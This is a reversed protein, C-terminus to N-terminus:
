FHQSHPGHHHMGGGFTPESCRKEIPWVAAALYLGGPILYAAGLIWVAHMEDSLLSAALLIVGGTTAVVGGFLEHHWGIVLATAAIVITALLTLEATTQNALPQAIPNEPGTARSVVVGLVGAGVLGGLLRATWHCILRPNM